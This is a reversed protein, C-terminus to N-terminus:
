RARRLTFMVVIALLVTPMWAAVLVQLHFAAGAELVTRDVLYYALGVVVGLALRQGAGGARLHGTTFALALLVMLLVSVPAAMKHWFAVQYGRTAFGNASLYHIYDLLGRWSLNEPDVVLVQFTSPPVFNPWPLVPNTFSQTRAGDLRTGTVDHLTWAGKAYTAEAAESMATVAGQANLHYIHLAELATPSDVKLVHVIEDDAKLWIGNAGVVNIQAYMKEVRLTEALQKAPPAIFEGLVVALLALALGGWAVARALRLISAGSTRMLVLEQNAALAGLAFVAGILAGVPFMDYATQPMTLASYRLATGVTFSGTGVNHIQSLFTLFFGVGLLAALAILAGVLLTRSLYRDVLM